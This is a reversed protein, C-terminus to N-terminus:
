KSQPNKKLCVYFGTEDDQSCLHVDRLEQGKKSLKHSFAVYGAPQCKQELFLQKTIMLFDDNQTEPETDDIPGLAIAELPNLIATVSYWMKAEEIEAREKKEWALAVAYRKELSRCDSPPIYTIDDRGYMAPHLRYDVSACGCTLLALAALAALIGYRM